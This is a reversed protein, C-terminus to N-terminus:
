LNDEWTVLIRNDRKRILKYERGFANYEITYNKLFERFYECGSLGDMIARRQLKKVGLMFHKIELDETKLDRTSMVDGRIKYNTETSEEFMYLWLSAWSHINSVKNTQPMQFLSDNQLDESQIM